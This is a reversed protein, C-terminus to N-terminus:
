WFWCDGRFFNNSKETNFYLNQKKLPYEKIHHMEHEIVDEDNVSMTTDDMSNSIIEPGKEREEMKTETTYRSKQSLANNSSPCRNCSNRHYDYRHRLLQKRTAMKSRKNNCVTCIYFPKHSTDPCSIMMAWPFEVVEEYDYTVYEDKGKLKSECERCSLTGLPALGARKQIIRRKSYM